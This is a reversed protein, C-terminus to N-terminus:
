WRWNSTGWRWTKGFDVNKYITIVNNVEKDVVVAIDRTKDWIIRADTFLDEYHRGDEMAEAVTEESLSDAIAEQAAHYSVDVQVNLYGAILLEAELLWLGPDTNMYPKMVGNTNSGDSPSHTSYFEKVSPYFASQINSPLKSLQDKLFKDHEVFQKPDKSLEDLKSKPLKEIYKDVSDMIKEYNSNQSSQAISTSQQSSDITKAYAVSNLSLTLTSAIIISTIIKKM